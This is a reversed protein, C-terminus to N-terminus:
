FHRFSHSMGHRFEAVKILRIYSVMTYNWSTIFNSLDVSGITYDEVSAHHSGIRSRIAADTAGIFALSNVLM